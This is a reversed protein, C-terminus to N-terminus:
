FGKNYDCRSGFGMNSHIKTDCPKQLDQVYFPTNKALAIVLLISEIMKIKLVKIVPTPAYLVQGRINLIELIENTM